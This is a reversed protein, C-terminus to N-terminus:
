SLRIVTFKFVYEQKQLAAARYYKIHEWKIVTSNSRVELIFLEGGLMSDTYSKSTCVLARRVNAGSAWWRM